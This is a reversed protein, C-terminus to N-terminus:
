VEVTNLQTSCTEIITIEQINTICKHKNINNKFVCICVYKQKSYIKCIAMTWKM